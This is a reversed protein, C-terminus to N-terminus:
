GVVGAGFQRFAAATARARDLDEKLRDVTERRLVVLRRNVVCGFEVGPFEKHRYWYRTVAAAPVIFGMCRLTDRFDKFTM